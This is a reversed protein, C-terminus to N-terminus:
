VTPPRFHGTLTADPESCSHDQRMLRECWLRLDYSARVVVTTRRDHTTASMFSLSRRATVVSLITAGILLQGGAPQNMCNPFLLGGYLHPYFALSRNRSVTKATSSFASRKRARQTDTRTHNYADKNRWFCATLFFLCVLFYGAFFLYMAFSILM